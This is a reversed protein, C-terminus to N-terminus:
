LSERKVVLMVALFAAIVGVSLNLFADVALQADEVGREAFFKVAAWYALDYQQVALAVYPDALEKLQAAYLQFQERDSYYFAVVPAAVVSLYLLTRLM